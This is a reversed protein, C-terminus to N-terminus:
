RTDRMPEAAEALVDIEGAAAKMEVLEVPRASKTFVDALGEVKRDGLVKAHAPDTLIDAPLVFTGDNLEFPELATHPSTKGRLADAESKSLVIFDGVLAKQETLDSPTM